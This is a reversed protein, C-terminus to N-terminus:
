RGFMMSPLFRAIIPFAMVLAILILLVAIFTWAVPYTTAETKKTKIKGGQKDAGISRNVLRMFRAPSIFMSLMLALIVLVGFWVGHLGLSLIVPYTVPTLLVVAVLKDVIMGLFMFAALFLLVIFVSAIDLRSFFSVLSVTILSRTLFLSFLGAGILLVFTKGTLMASQILSDILIKLSMQKVLLAFVFALAAGIAAAETPTAWGMYILVFMAAFLFPVFWALKLAQIASPRNTKAAAPAPNPRLIIFFSAAIMLLITAFGGPVIGALLMQGISLEAMFGFAILPISPPIILALSAGVTAVSTSFGSDYGHKKMDSIADPLSAKMM